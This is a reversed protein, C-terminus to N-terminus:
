NQVTNVTSVNGWYVIADNQGWTLMKAASHTMIYMYAYAM